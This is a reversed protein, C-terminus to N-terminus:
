VLSIRLKRLKLAVKLADTLTVRPMGNNVM